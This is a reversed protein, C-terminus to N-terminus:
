ESPLPPEGQGLRALVGAVTVPGGPYLRGIQTCHPGTGSLAAAPEGLDRARGQDVLVIRDGVEAALDLDHTALVVACGRGALKRLLDGLAARSDGDM